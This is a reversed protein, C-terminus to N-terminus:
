RNKNLLYIFLKKKEFKIIKCKEIKNKDNLNNIRKYNKNIM